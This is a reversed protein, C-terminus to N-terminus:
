NIAWTLEKIIAIPIEEVPQWDDMSPVIMLNDRKINKVDSNWAKAKNIKVGLNRKSTNCQELYNEAKAIMKKVDSKDLHDDIITQLKVACNDYIGHKISGHEQEARNKKHEGIRKNLKKANKM